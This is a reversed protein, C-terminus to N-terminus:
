APDDAYGLGAPVSAIRCLSWYLASAVGVWLSADRPVFFFALLLLQATVVGLRRNRYDVANHAFGCM